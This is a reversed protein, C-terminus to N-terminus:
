KSLIKPFNFNSLFFTWFGIQSFVKGSICTKHAYNFNITQDGFFYNEIQSSLIKISKILFPKPM